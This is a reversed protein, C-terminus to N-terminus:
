VKAELPLQILFTTGEGPKSEVSISGNHKQVIVSHAIALGQGTGKGVSKTTFFPDFIRSRIAEPIGSGTDTVRIEASTGNRRTSIHIAGLTGRDGVVDAIAHAANVILNLMVQNFEGGLCPVPPLYPDFDTTLEAVYKWENRSVLVTSEIARNLDVPTKELPGPHSFEKMARVINAVHAVGEATQQVAKPIEDRLYELVGADIGASLNDRSEEPSAVNRCQEALRILDGFADGLFATNDGIYQIPTNIEHAIGAALQGISELKQTQALQRELRKMQTRDWAVHAMGIVEGTRSHVPSRSLLVDIPEGSKHLRVTEVHYVSEGRRIRSKIEADEGRREPPILATMTRGIMEPASYGYLREAGRNWTRVEGELDQSIIAADACEVIAALEANSREVKKRETIDKVVCIFKYVRGKADRLPAGQAAWYRVAGNPELIRYEESYRSGTRISEQFSAELRPRDEPHVIDLLGTNTTPLRWGPGDGCFESGGLITVQDTELDYECIWDGSNEAAIRFREESHRLATEMEMRETIDEAIALQHTPNGLADRILLVTISEWVLEGNKRKTRMVERWIGSRISKEIQAAVEPAVREAAFITRANKGRLEELTYGSSRLLRENAYQIKGDLDAISINVPSQEVASSLILLREETQKQETIDFDVGITRSRHGQEDLILFAKSHLWRVSGDPWVVRFERDFAESTSHSKAAQVKRDRDEPHVCAHWEDLSLKERTPPLGYLRLLQQSCSVTRTRENVEWTGLALASQALKLRDETERLAQEMQKPATMDRHIGLVKHGTAVEDRLVSWSVQAVFRSGDRKTCIFEGNWSGRELIDAHISKRESETVVTGVIAGYRQGIAEQATWGFLREAAANWYSVCFNKDVTIIADTVQDLLSGQFDVQQQVRAAETVEIMASGIGRVNGAPDTLLHACIQFIGEEGNAKRYKCETLEQTYRADLKRFFSAQSSEREEPAALDWVPQGIIESAPLGLRQCEARNVRTVTGRTDTEHYPIPWDDLFDSSSPREVKQPRGRPASVVGDSTRRNAM